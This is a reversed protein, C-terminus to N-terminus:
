GKSEAETERDPTQDEDIGDTTGTNPNSNSGEHPRGAALAAQLASVHAEINNDDYDQRLQNLEIPVGGVASVIPVLAALEYNIFADAENKDLYKEAVRCIDFLLTATTTSPEGGSLLKTVRVLWDALGAQHCPHLYTEPLRLFINKGGLLCDLTFYLLGVVHKVDLPSSRLEEATSPIKIIEQQSSSRRSDSFIDSWGLLFLGNTRLMDWTTHPVENAFKVTMEPTIEFQGVPDVHTNGPHCLVVLPAEGVDHINKKDIIIEGM